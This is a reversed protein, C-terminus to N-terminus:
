LRPLSSREECAAEVTTEQIYRANMYIPILEDKEISTSDIKKRYIADLVKHFLLPYPPDVKIDIM